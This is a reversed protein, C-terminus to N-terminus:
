RGLQHAAQRMGLTKEYKASQHLPLLRNRLQTLLEPDLLHWHRLLEYTQSRVPKDFRAPLSRGNVISNRGGFHEGDDFREM